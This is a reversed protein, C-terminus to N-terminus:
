REMEEGTEIDIMTDHEYAKKFEQYTSGFQRAYAGIHRRTTNSYLGNCYLYGNKIGAVETKYSVLVTDGTDLHIIHAQAYPMYALKTITM